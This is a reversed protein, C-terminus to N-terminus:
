PWPPLHASCPPCSTWVRGDAYHTYTLSRVDVEHGCAARVRGWDELHEVSELLRAKRRSV